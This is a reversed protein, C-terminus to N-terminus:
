LIQNNNEFVKQTTSHEEAFAPTAPTLIQSELNDKFNSIMETPDERVFKTIAQRLDGLCRKSEKEASEDDTDYDREQCFKLRKVPAM